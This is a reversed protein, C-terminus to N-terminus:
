IIARHIGSYDGVGATKSNGGVRLLATVPAANTGISGARIRRLHRRDGSMKSFAQLFLAVGMAFASAAVAQDAFQTGSASSGGDATVDTAIGAACRARPSL